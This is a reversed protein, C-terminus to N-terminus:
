RSSRRRPTLKLERAVRIPFRTKAAFRAASENRWFATRPVQFVDFGISSGPAAFAATYGAKRVGARVREDHEGYPYAIFPCSRGLEAEIAAKSGALERHLDDDALRTLHAHSLTHSGVEILGDRTLARLSNWDLTALEDVQRVRQLETVLLQQGSGALDSCVFVTAPLKLRELIPVANEVSRFADDFTVHLLRRGDPRSLVEGASAGRFGRGILTQLQQEFQAVPTALPDDWTDSVAHYCLILPRFLAM